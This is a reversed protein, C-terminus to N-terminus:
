RPLAQPAGISMQMVKLPVAWERILCPRARDTSVASPRSRSSWALSWLRTCNPSFTRSCTAKMQLQQPQQQSAMSAALRKATSFGIAVVAKKGSSLSAAQLPQPLHASTQGTSAQARTDAPSGCWGLRRM